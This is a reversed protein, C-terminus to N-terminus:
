VSFEHCRVRSSGCARSFVDEHRNGCEELFLACGRDRKLVHGLRRADSPRRHVPMPGIRGGEHAVREPVDGDWKEVAGRAGDVYPEAVVQLADVIFECLRECPREQQGHEALCLVIRVVGDSGMVVAYSRFRGSGSCVGRSIHTPAYSAISLVLAVVMVWNDEFYGHSLWPGAGFLTITAVLALGGGLTVVKTMQADLWDAAQTHVLAGDPMVTPWDDAIAGAPVPINLSLATTTTM